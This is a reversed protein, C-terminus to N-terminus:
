TGPTEIEVTPHSGRKERNILMLNRGYVFLGAAQGTIFVPDLKYIAYALLVVGGGVSFYWFALPIVSKGVIESKFWQVIFRSAFLGQGLFGVILWVHDVTLWGIAKAIM